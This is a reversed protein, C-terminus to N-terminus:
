LSLRPLLDLYLMFIFIRGSFRILQKATWVGFYKFHINIKFTCVEFPALQFPQGGNLGSTLQGSLQLICPNTNFIRIEARGVPIVGPLTKQLSLSPYIILISKGLRINGMLIFHNGAALKCRPCDACIGRHRFCCRSFGYWGGNSRAVQRSNFWNKSYKIKLMALSSGCTSSTSRQYRFPIKM